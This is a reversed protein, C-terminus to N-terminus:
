TGGLRAHALQGWSSDPYSRWLGALIGEARRLDGLKRYCIAQLYHIEVLQEVRDDASDTSSRAATELVELADLAARFQRHDFLLTEIANLESMVPAFRPFEPVTLNLPM